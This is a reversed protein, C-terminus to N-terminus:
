RRVVMVRESPSMPSSPPTYEYKHTHKKTSSNIQHVIRLRGSTTGRGDAFSAGATVYM